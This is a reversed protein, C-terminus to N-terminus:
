WDGTPKARKDEIPYIFPIDRFAKNLIQRIVSSQCRTRM